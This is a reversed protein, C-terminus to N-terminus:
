DTAGLRVRNNREDRREEVSVSARDAASRFLSSVVMALLRSLGIRTRSPYGPAIRSRHPDPACGQQESLFLQRAQYLRYKATL